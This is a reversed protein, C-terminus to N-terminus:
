AKIAWLEMDLGPFEGNLHLAIAGSTELHKWHAGTTDLQFYLTGQRYPIQRPAVSLPRVEVGPLAVNVLESIKEVAGIKIQYPLARQLREVPMDARVALVFDASKLLAKNSIIGVRVGHRREELAITVASQELVASLAQRLEYFVASFSAQLDDHRYVPFEAPRKSQRTFIALEGAFSLCARYFEEPHIAGAQAQLHRLLPENRNLCELLLFDAIEATGRVSPDSIRQAIADARHGILGVLETVYALLPQQVRCNMTPAIFGEDLIVALDSRVEVIRLVGLRECGALPESARRLKLQPRAVEIDASVFSDDNTDQPNYLARTYRMDRSQGGARNHTSGIEKEGPKRSTLTLYIIDGNNEPTVEIADPLDTDGPADIATGDPLIARVANLEIRGTALAENNLRLDILGWPFPRLDRTAANVLRETWRDAQQFHQTRLFMGEAWVVRNNQYM